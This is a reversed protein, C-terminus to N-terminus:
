NNQKKRSKGEWQYDVAYLNGDKFSLEISDSDNNECVDFVKLRKNDIFIFAGPFPNLGRIKRIAEGKTLSSKLEAFSKEIKPSLSFNNGQSEPKFENKEIKHLWQVINEAALESVIKFGEGTTTYEDITKSAKFYMDGSDMQEAMEMFTIGIEKDGSLIAYHIPAAGRYKPLLSGHINTPKYKGAQLIDNPIWQGFAFTLFMDFNLNIIEKSIDKIKHPKFVKIGHKEALKAVPTSEFKMGRGKPRDPQTVIALVDFNEIIKEFAKISIEPSGALVLKM